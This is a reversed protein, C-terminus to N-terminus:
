CTFTRARAKRPFGRVAAYTSAEIVMTSGLATFGFISGSESLSKEYHEMHLEYLRRMKTLPTNSVHKFPFLAAGAVPLNRFFYDPPLVADADTQYIWRSKIKNQAILSLAVDSGIKRALGVGEKPPIRQGETVRDM